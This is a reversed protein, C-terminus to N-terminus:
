LAIVLFNHSNIRKKPPPHPPPPPHERRASHIDVSCLFYLKGNLIEATFTVLDSPFQPNPLM